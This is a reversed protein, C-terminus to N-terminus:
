EEDEDDDEDEGEVQRNQDHCESCVHNVSEDFELVQGLIISEMKRLLKQAVQWVGVYLLAGGEMLGHRALLVILCALTNIVQGPSVVQPSNWFAEWLSSLPSWLNLRLATQCGALSVWFITHSLLGFIACGSLVSQLWKFKAYFLHGFLFEAVYTFPWICLILLLIAVCQSTVPSAIFDAIPLRKLNYQYHCQPCEYYSRPNNGALRWKNLCSKHVYQM